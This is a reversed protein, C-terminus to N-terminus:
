RLLAWQGPEPVEATTLRLNDLGLIDNSHNPLISLSHIPAATTLSLIGRLACLRCESEGAYEIGPVNGQSDYATLVAHPVPWCCPCPWLFSVAPLCRCPLM